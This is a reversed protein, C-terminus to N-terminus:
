YLLATKSIISSFEWQYAITYKEVVFWVTDFSVRYLDTKNEKRIHESVARITKM